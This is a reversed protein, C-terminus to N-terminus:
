WTKQDGQRDSPQQQNKQYQYLFKRRLLGGPDDPVRRLWQEYAQRAEMKKLTEADTPTKKQEEQKLLQGQPEEQKGEDENDSQKAVAQKADDANKADQEAQQAMAKQEEEANEKTSDAQQSSGEQAQGSEEGQQPQGDQQKEQGEKGQEQQGQQSEEGKKGQKEGQQEKEEQQQQDQAEKLQELLQKNYIADEHEPELKLVQDYAKIAADIQGSKALANGRNYHANVSNIPALLKIAADYDEAKYAASAKWEPHQFRIAAEAYRDQQLLHQGQQDDNLWLNQWEMAQVPQQPYCVLLLMLLWGRRFVLAIVPLLLLLLWPAEERWQDHVFTEEDGKKRLSAAADDQWWQQIRELDGNDLQLPAYVGDGQDALDKLAASNLSPVVINGAADELYGGQALPIPAGRVTGVSIVSLRHGARHLKRLASQIDEQDLADVDDGIFLLHGFQIGSNKLLASGKELAKALNSGQVPMMDTRISQLQSDITATDDTLPTVIFAAGAFVILATQGEARMQLLDHLKQRARLLRSPAVDQADMSRSVDLLIVLASNQRYVPQPLQKWAPGSIIIILLSGVVALLWWPWQRRQQAEGVLLYDLLAPDCQRLWGEASGQQRYLWYLLPWWLFLLLLFWPRLLHLAQWSFDALM